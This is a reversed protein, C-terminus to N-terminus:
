VCGLALRGLRLFAGRRAFPDRGAGGLWERQAFCGAVSCKLGPPLAPQLPARCWLKGGAWQVGVRLVASGQEWAAGAGAQSGRRCLGAPLGTRRRLARGLAGM